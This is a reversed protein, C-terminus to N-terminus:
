DKRQWRKVRKKISSMIANFKLFVFSIPFFVVDIAKNIYCILPMLCQHLYTQYIIMGFILSVIFYFRLVGEDIFFLGMFYIGGFLIGFCGQLLSCFWKFKIRVLYSNVLHYMFTFVLGFVFSYGIGQVQITLNM